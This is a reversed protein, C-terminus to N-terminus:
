RQRALGVLGKGLPEDRPCVLAIPSEFHLACMVAVPFRQRPAQLEDPALRGLAAEHDIEGPRPAARALVELRERRELTEPDIPDLIGKRAIRDAFVGSRRPQSARGHAATILGRAAGIEHCEHIAAANCTTRSSAVASPPKLATSGSTSSKACAAGGRIM